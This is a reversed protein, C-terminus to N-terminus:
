PKAGGYRHGALQLLRTRFPEGKRHIFGPLRMVRPLDCVKVDSGYHEALARQADRFQELPWGTVLWYVHHKGPSSEVVASPALNFLEAIRDARTEDANDFDVFLARVTTVNEAKRGNGDTANVTFFVGAGQANLAALEEPIVGAPAHFTRALEPRKANTDDFTQFTVPEGPAIAELFERATAMDPQIADTM